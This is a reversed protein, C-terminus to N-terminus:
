IVEYTMSGPAKASIKITSPFGKFSMLKSASGFFFKRRIM